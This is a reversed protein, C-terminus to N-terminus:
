GDSRGRKKILEAPINDKGPAKNNKLSNIIEDIKEISLLTDEDM